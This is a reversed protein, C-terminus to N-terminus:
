LLLLIPLAAYLALLIAEGFAGVLRNPTDITDAAQMFVARTLLEMEGALDGGLLLLGAAGGITISATTLERSRVVQGKKRAEERRRPTAQETREGSDNEAM